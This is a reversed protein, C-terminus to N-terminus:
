KMFCGCARAVLISHQAEPSELLEDQQALGMAQTEDLPTHHRYGRRAMEAVEAEHRLFLAKLKGRWRRTEPHTAYGKKDLTIINWIAHLERHEGLLHNRCLQRVPVDWIRM